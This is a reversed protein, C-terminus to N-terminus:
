SQKKSRRVYGLGLCSFAGTVLLALSGPEPVTPAPGTFGGAFGPSAYSTYDAPDYPRPTQPGTYLLFNEVVQFSEPVLQADGAAAISLLSSQQPSVIRGFVNATAGLGEYAFFSHDIGPISVFDANANADGTNFTTGIGVHVTLTDVPPGGGTPIFDLVLDVGFILSELTSTGNYLTVTGLQFEVDDSVAVSQNPFFNLTSTGPAGANTGWNVTAFSGGAYISYRASSANNFYGGGYVSGSLVPNEFHANISGIFFDATATRCPLTMLVAALSFFHVFKVM